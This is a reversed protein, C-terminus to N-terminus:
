KSKKRKKREPLIVTFTIQNKQQDDSKKKTMWDDFIQSANFFFDVLLFANLVAKLLKIRV